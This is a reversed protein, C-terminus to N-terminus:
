RAGQRPLRFYHPALSSDLQVSVVIDRGGLRWLDEQAWALRTIAEDFAKVAADRTQPAAPASSESCAVLLALVLLRSSSLLRSRSM